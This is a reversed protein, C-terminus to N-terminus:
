GELPHVSLPTYRAGERRLESRYLVLRELKTDGLDLPPLEPRRVREKWRGLTLHCRFSRPEPEFGAEVAARECAAQLELICPEVQTGLWLVRPSGRDPFLGLSSFRAISAPCGAAAERLRTDVLALSEPTSWGLFRLTLHVGEPRVWRAGPFRSRLADISEAIRARLAEDIELAVFARVRDSV